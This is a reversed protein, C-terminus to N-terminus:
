AEAQHVSARWLKKGRKKLALFVQKRCSPLLDQSASRRFNKMWKEDLPHGHGLISKRSRQDLRSDMAQQNRILPRNKQTPLRWTFFSKKTSLVQRGQSM